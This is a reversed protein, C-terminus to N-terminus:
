MFLRGPRWPRPYSRFIDPDANDSQIPDGPAPRRSARGPLLSSGAAPPRRSPASAGPRACAAARAPRATGVRGGWPWSHAAAAAASVPGSRPLAPPRTWTPGPDSPFILARRSCFSCCSLSRSAAAKPSMRSTCFSTSLPTSTFEWFSTLPQYTPLPPPGPDSSRARAGSPRGDDPRCWCLRPRAGPAESTTLAQPWGPGGVQHLGSRPRGLDQGM